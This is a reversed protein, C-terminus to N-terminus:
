TELQNRVDDKNSLQLPTRGDKDRLSRDANYQLLIKVVDAHGNNAAYHLPTQNSNTKTFTITKRHHYKHYNSSAKITGHKCTYKGVM